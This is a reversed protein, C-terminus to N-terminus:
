NVGLWRVGCAELVKEVQDGITMNKWVWDCGRSAIAERKGDERLYELVKDALDVDGSWEVFVGDPFPHDEPLTETLLLTGAALTEGIRTELNPENAIHINLIIKCRQTFEALTPLDYTQIIQVAPFGEKKLAGNLHDIIRERRKNLNGYFGVPIVKEVTKVKRWEPRAGGAYVVKPEKGSLRKIPEIMNPSSVIVYDAEKVYPKIQALRARAHKGKGAIHESHWLIRVQGNHRPQGLVQIGGSCALLIQSRTSPMPAFGAAGLVESIGVEFRWPSNDPAPIAITPRTLVLDIERRQQEFGLNDAVWKRYNQRDEATPKEQLMGVAEQLTVFIWQAAYFDRSSRWCNIVPKLGAAMAEALAYHLSEERSSSLFYDKDAYWANLNAQWDYFFVSKRLDLEDLLQQIYQWERTDQVTGAIHLELEPRAKRVEALIHLAFPIDKKHNIYGAMAIKNGTKGEAVTWQSVDIGGPIYHLLCVQRMQPAQELAMELLYQAVFIVNDVKQWAVQPLFGAHVEYGHVRVIMRCVHPRKTAEVLLPGAWEFWCADPKWALTAEIDEVRECIMIQYHKQWLQLLPKLFKDDGRDIFVALKRIPPYNPAALMIAQNMMNDPASAEHAEKLMANGTDMDGKAFYVQAQRLRPLWTHTIAEVFHPDIKAPRKAALGYWWLAEDHSDSEFAVDGMICYLEARQWNDKIYACAIERAEALDRKRNEDSEKQRSLLARALFIAAQYREHPWTNGSKLYRRYFEIAQDYRGTDNYTGALYFLSRSDEPNEEIRPLFFKEAMRLRQEARYQREGEPRFKRTHLIAMNEPAQAGMKANCIFNHMPGDFRKEKRILREAQFTSQVTVGDNDLMVMTLVLMDVEPQVNPLMGQILEHSRFERDVWKGEAGPMKIVAKAPFIEDSDLILVWESKVQELAHNRAKAFGVEEVSLGDCVTWREGTSDWKTLWETVAERTNDTNTVDVAVVIESVLSRVSELTHIISQAENRAIMCLGLIM